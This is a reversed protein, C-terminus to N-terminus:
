SDKKDDDLAGMAILNSLIQEADHDTVDKGDRFAVTLNNPLKDKLFLDILIGKADKGLKTLHESINISQHKVKEKELQNRANILRQKKYSQKSATAAKLFKDKLANLQVGTKLLENDLTEPSMSSFNEIIIDDVLESKTKNSM